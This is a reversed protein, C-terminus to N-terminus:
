CLKGNCEITEWTKDYLRGRMNDAAYWRDPAIVIKDKYECLFQAWWSFTSNSIIFNKCFKMMFLEEYDRRKGNSVYVVREAYFLNMHERVYKIDDSFVFYVPNEILENTRKIAKKYYEQTCVYHKKSNIYDGCRIHICVSECGAINNMLIQDDNQLVQDIAIEKLLKTRLEYAFFPIQFYGFVWANKTDIYYLYEEACDVDHNIIIGKGSLKKGQKHEIYIHTNPPRHIIKNWLQCGLYYINKGKSMITMQRYNIIRDIRLKYRSLCANYTTHHSQKRSFYIMLKKHYKDCLYRAYAYIFLQNAMGCDPMCVIIM